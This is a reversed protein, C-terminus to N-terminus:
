RTNSIDTDFDMKCELLHVPIYDLHVIERM